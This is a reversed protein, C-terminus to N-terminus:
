FLTQQTGHHSEKYHLKKLYTGRHILSAGHNKIAEQHLATAYGKHTELAYAPFLRALDNMLRDRTVKAIISAAAISSSYSEGQIFSHVQVATLPGREFTLPVADVLIASLSPTTHLACLNSVAKHMSQITAQYINILDITRHDAIGVGVHCHAIIWDYATERQKATMKKSDKLLPNITGVPLIVAASLVPGALCGRGVEDIGCVFFGKNWANKEHEDKELKIKQAPRIMSNNGNSM